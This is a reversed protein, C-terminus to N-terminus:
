RASERYVSQPGVQPGLDAEHHMRPGCRHQRCQCGPRKRGMLHAHGAVLCGSQAVPEAAEASYGHQKRGTRGRGEVGMCPGGEVPHASREMRGSCAEYPM